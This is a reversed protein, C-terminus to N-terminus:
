GLDQEESSVGGEWGLSLEESATCSGALPPKSDSGWPFGPYAEVRLSGFWLIPSLPLSPAGGIDFVKGAVGPCLRDQCCFDILVGFTCPNPIGSGCGVPTGEPFAGSKYLLSQSGEGLDVNAPHGWLGM